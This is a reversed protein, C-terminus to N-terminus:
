CAEPNRLGGWDLRPLSIGLRVLGLSETWCPVPIMFLTFLCPASRLSAWSVTFPDPAPHSISLSGGQASARASGPPHLSRLGLGPSPCPRPSPSLACLPSAPAPSSDAPTLTKLGVARLAPRPDSCNHLSKFYDYYIRKLCM